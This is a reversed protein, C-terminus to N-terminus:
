RAPSAVAHLGGEPTTLHLFVDELSPRQLSLHCVGLGAGVLHANIRVADEAAQASIRLRNPGGPETLWGAGSLLREADALREAPAIEVLVSPQLHDRLEEPSGQSVLRGARLIGVQSAIQEVEHLLHSSLFVTIGDQEPLRRVMERIEQIGAPDLGNTPEDLILLEPEGLLAIALGLRQRMGLSYQRVLRHAAATLGMRDLVRSISGADVGLLRRIVELNERGTLHPYLSPNEVLSGVRRLVAARHEGLPRGFLRVEGAHPRLLGLLMRITTTKGAGNAGLFGYVSGRPVQLDLDEVALVNGYRHTLRATEIVIEAM